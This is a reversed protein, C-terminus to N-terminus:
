LLTEDTVQDAETTVSNQVPETSAKGAKSTEVVGTVDPLDPLTLLEKRKRKKEARCISGDPHKLVYGHSLEAKTQEQIKKRTLKPKPEDKIDPKTETKIAIGM